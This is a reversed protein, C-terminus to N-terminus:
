AVGISSPSPSGEVEGGDLADRIFDIDDDDTATRGTEAGRNLDLLEGLLAALLDADDDEFLTGLHAVVNERTGDDLGVGEVLKERVPLLETGGEVLGGEFILHTEEGGGAGEGHWVWWLHGVLAVVDDRERADDRPEALLGFGGADLDVGTEGGCLGEPM